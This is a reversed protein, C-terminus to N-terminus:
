VPCMSSSLQYSEFFYKDEPKQRILTGLGELNLLLTLKHLSLTLNKLASPQVKYKSHSHLLLNQM